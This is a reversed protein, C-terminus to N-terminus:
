YALLKARGGVADFMSRVRGLPIIACRGAEVDVVDVRPVGAIDALRQQTTGFRKRILRLMQGIREDDNM